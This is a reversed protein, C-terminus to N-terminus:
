ATAGNSQSLSEGCLYAKNLGFPTSEQAVACHSVPVMEPAYGIATPWRVKRIVSPSANSNRETPDRRSKALVSVGRIVADAAEAPALGVIADGVAASMKPSPPQRGTLAEVALLM